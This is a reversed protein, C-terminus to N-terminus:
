KFDHNQWTCRAGPLCLVFNFLCSRRTIMGHMRSASVAAAHRGGGVRGAAATGRLRARAKAMRDCCPSSCSELRSAASSPRFASPYEGSARAGSSDCISSSFCSADEPSRVSMATSTFPFSTAVSGRSGRSAVSAIGSAPCALSGSDGSLGSGRALTGPARSSGGQVTTTAPALPRTPELTTVSSRRLCLLTCTRASTLDALRM